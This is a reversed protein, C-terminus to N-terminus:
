RAHRKKRIDIKKPYFPPLSSSLSHSQTTTTQKTNNKLKEMGAAIAVAVQNKWTLLWVASLRFTLLFVSSCISSNRGGCTGPNLGAPMHLTRINFRESVGWVSLQMNICPYYYEFTDCFIFWLKLVSGRTLNSKIWTWSFNNGKETFFYCHSKHESSTNTLSILIMANTISKHQRSASECYSSVGICM